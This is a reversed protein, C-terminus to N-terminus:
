LVDDFSANPTGIVTDPDIDLQDVGTRTQLELCIAIVALKIFNELELVQDDVLNHIGHGYGQGVCFCFLDAARWGVVELGVVVINTGLLGTIYPCCKVQIFCDRKVLLRNLEVGVKCICM